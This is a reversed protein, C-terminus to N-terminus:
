ELNRLMPDIAKGFAKAAESDAFAQIFPIGEDGARVIDPDIPIRGLFPVGMDRAM